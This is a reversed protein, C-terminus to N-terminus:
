VTGGETESVQGACTPCNSSCSTGHPHERWGCARSHPLGKTEPEVPAAGLMSEPLDDGSRVVGAMFRLAEKANPSEKDARRILLEAIRGRIDQEPEVAAREKRSQNLLDFRANSCEIAQRANQNSAEAKAAAVESALWRRAAAESELQIGHSEVSCRGLWEAMSEGSRQPEVVRHPLRYGRIVEDTTPTYEDRLEDSM